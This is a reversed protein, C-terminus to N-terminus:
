GGSYIRDALADLEEQSMKMLEDDSPMSTVSLDRPTLPQPAHQRAAGANAPQAVAGPQGPNRPRVQMRALIGELYAVAREADLKEGPRIIRGKEDRVCTQNFHMTLANNVDVMLMQQNEPGEGWKDAFLPYKSLGAGGDVFLTKVSHENRSMEQQAEWAQQAQQRENKIAELEARVQDFESKQQQTFREVFKEPPIKGDAMVYDVLDKYSYGLLQLAELPSNAARAQAEELPKLKAERAAFDAERQQAKATDEAVRREHREEKAALKAFGKSLKTQSEEEKPKEEVKPKEDVKPQEETQGDLEALAQQILDKENVGERGIDADDGMAGIDKSDGPSSPAPPTAPPGQIIPTVALYSSAGSDAM